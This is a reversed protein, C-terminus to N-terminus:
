SALLALQRTFSVGGVAFWRLNPRRANQITNLHKQIGAEIWKTDM